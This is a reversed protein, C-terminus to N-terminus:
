HLHIVQYSGGGSLIGILWILCIVVLVVVAVKRIPEPPSLYGILWWGCGAVLCVILLNLLLSVM